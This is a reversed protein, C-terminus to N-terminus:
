SCAQQTHRLRDPKKKNNKELQKWKEKNQANANKSARENVMKAKTM